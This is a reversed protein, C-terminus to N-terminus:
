LAQDFASLAKERDGAKWTSMGLMYHGWPNEAHTATYATFLQAAEPYRGANFASEASEYSATTLAGPTEAGAPATSAASVTPTSGASTTKPQDSRGCGAAFPILTSIVLMPYRALPRSM